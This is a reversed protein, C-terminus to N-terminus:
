FEFFALGWAEGEKKRKAALDRWIGTFLRM